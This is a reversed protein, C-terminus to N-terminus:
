HLPNTESQSKKLLTGLGGALGPIAKNFMWILFIAAGIRYDAVRWHDFYMMGAGAKVVGEVMGLSPLFSSGFYFTWSATLNSWILAPTPLPNELILLAFALTYTLTKLLSLVTLQYIPFDGAALKPIWRVLRDDWHAKLWTRWYHPRRIFVLALGSAVVLIASLAMLWHRDILPHQFYLLGVAALITRAIWKAAQLLATVEVSQRRLHGKPFQLYRAGFESLGSPAFLHFYQFTLTNSFASWYSLPALQRAPLWWMLAELWLGLVSLAALSVWQWTAWWHWQEPAEDLKRFIIWLALALFVSRILWRWSAKLLTDPSPSKKM